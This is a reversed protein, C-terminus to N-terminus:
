RGACKICSQVVPNLDLRGFSIEEDCNACYGYDGSKIRELAKEIQVFLAERRRQGEKVMQQQQIADIRSLRGVTTQDLAVPAAANEAAQLEAKTQQQLELLKQKFYATDL